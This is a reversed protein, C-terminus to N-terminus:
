WGSEKKGSAREGTEDGGLVGDVGQCMGVSEDVGKEEGEDVGPVKGDEAAAEELEAAHDVGEGM